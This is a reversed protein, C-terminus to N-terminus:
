VEFANLYNLAEAQAAPTAACTIKDDGSGNIESFRQIKGDLYVTSRGCPCPTDWHATVQDGTIVGGWSGDHTMDFFSARGTQTGNRPKPKGTEPDLVFLVVWPALHYRGQDCGVVLSTMETM